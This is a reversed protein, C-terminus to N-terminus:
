YGNRLVIKVKSYEINLCEIVQEKDVLMGPAAVVVSGIAVPFHERSTSEIICEIDAYVTLPAFQNNRHGNFKIQRNYPSSECYYHVPDCSHKSGIRYTSLM